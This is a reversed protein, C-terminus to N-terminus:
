LRKSRLPQIAWGPPRLPDPQQSHQQFIQISGRAGDRNKRTSATEVGDVIDTVIEIDVFHNLTADGVYNRRDKTTQAVLVFTIEPYATLLDRVAESSAGTLENMSDIVVIPYRGSKVLSLLGEWTRADSFHLLRNRIGLRDLRDKLRGTEVPEETMYVLARAAAARTLEDAMALVLHTKGSGPKGWLLIRSGQKPEGLLQGIPGSLRLGPRAQARRVNDLSLVQPETTTTTTMDPTQETPPLPNEGLDESSSAPDSLLAIGERRALTRIITELQGKDASPLEEARAPNKNEERFLVGTPLNNGDYAHQWVMRSMQRMYRIGEPTCSMWDDARRPDDPKYDAPMDQEAAAFFAKFDRALVDASRKYQEPRVVSSKELVFTGALTVARLETIADMQCFVSFDALSFCSQNPHNHTVTYYLKKKPDQLIKPVGVAGKSGSSTNVAVAGYYKVRDSQYVALFEQISSGVAQEFAALNMKKLIEMSSASIPEPPTRDDCAARDFDPKPLEMPEGDGPEGGRPEGDGPEGGGPEGDPEGDGPESDGPEGGGPEGGGPEGGGSEDDDGPEGDDGSEDDDSPEGDPEGYEPDGNDSDDQPTNRDGDCPDIDVREIRDLLWYAWGALAVDTDFTGAAVAKDTTERLEAITM